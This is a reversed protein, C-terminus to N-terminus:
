FILHGSVFEASYVALFLGSLALSLAAMPPPVRVLLNGIVLYAPLVVAAFRGTSFMLNDYGKTIYPILLLGAALLFEKGDLQQYYAGYAVLLAVCAFIAPNMTTLNFLIGAPNERDILCLDHGPVFAGWIPELSVLIEAREVASVQSRTTWYEQTKAFALPDGFVHWQFAVFALLGWCALLGYASTRTIFRVGTGSRQWLHLIFPPVLAVGVPRTATGLGIIVAVWWFPWDRAMGILALLTLTVFLSESYPLRFFCSTPFFGFAAV